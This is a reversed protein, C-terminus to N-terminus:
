RGAASHDAIDVAGRGGKGSDASRAASAPSGPKLRTYRYCRPAPSRASVRSMASFRRAAPLGFFLLFLFFLILYCVSFSDKGADDDNTSLENMFEDPDKVSSPPSVVPRPVAVSEIGRWMM